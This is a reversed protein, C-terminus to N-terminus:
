DKRSRRTKKKTKLLGNWSRLTAKTAIEMINNLVRLFVTNSIKNSIHYIKTASDEALFKHYIEAVNQSIEAPNKKNDRNISSDYVVDFPMILLNPTYVVVTRSNKMTTCSKM